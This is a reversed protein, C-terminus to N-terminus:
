NFCIVNRRQMYVFHIQARSFAMHVDAVSFFFWHTGTHTLLNSDSDLGSFLWWKYIIYHLTYYAIWAVSVFACKGNWKSSSPECNGGRNLALTCPIEWTAFLRFLFIFPEVQHSIKIVMSIRSHMRVPRTRAYTHRLLYLNLIANFWNFSRTNPETKMAFAESPHFPIILINHFSRSINWRISFDVEMWM